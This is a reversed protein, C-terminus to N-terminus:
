RAREEREAVAASPGDMTYRVFAARMMSARGSRQIRGARAQPGGRRLGARRLFIRSPARRREAPRDVRGARRRHRRWQSARARAGARPAQRTRKAAGRPQGCRPRGDPALTQCAPALLREDIDTAVITADPLADLLARTFAGAGCGLELVHAGPEPPHLALVHRLEDLGGAAQAALRDAEDPDQAGVYSTM